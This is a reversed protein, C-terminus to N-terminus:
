SLHSLHLTFVTITLLGLVIDVFRDILVRKNDYRKILIEAAVAFNGNTIKLHVVMGLAEGSLCFVLYHLKVANSLHVIYFITIFSPWDEVKSSVVPLKIKPLVTTPVVSRLLYLASACFAMSTDKDNLALIEM